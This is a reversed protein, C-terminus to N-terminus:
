DVQVFPGAALAVNYYGKTTLTYVDAREAFPQVSVVKVNFNRAAEIM